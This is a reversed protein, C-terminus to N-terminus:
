DAGETDKEKAELKEIEDVTARIEALFVRSPAAAYPPEGDTSVIRSLHERQVSEYAIVWLDALMMIIRASGTWDTLGHKIVGHGDDNVDFVTHHRQIGAHAASSLYNYLIGAHPVSVLGKLASISKQPQKSEIEDLNDLGAIAVSWAIQELILRAVADAEIRLRLQYLLHASFMTHVLREMAISGAYMGLTLPANPNTTLSAMSAHIHAMSLQYARVYASRAPNDKPEAPSSVYRKRAYDVSSLGLTRSIAVAQLDASLLGQINHRRSFIITGTGISTVADLDALTDFLAKTGLAAALASEIDFSDSTAMDDVNSM